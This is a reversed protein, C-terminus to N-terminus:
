AICQSHNQTGATVTDRSRGHGIRNLQISVESLGAHQDYTLPLGVTVHVDPMYTPHNLARPTSAAEHRARALPSRFM